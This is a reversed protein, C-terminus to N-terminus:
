YANDEGKLQNFFTKFIIKIDLLVSWNSIYWVDHEVRKEMQWLEKTEGRYGNIQAWGTIGPKAALRIMYKDILSRYQETHSKMHPRPGVVTMNGWLVNYFQPLEDLSTRRLFDGFKTKRPDDKTAQLKDSDANVRMTRFKLCTFDKGYLGSRKQRFFVPGPSSLKIGIAIPVFIIPSVIAFPVSVALDLARKKLRNLTSALPTFHHVLTHMDGVKSFRFQASMLKPLKPVYIFQSGFEEALQMVRTLEAHDNGDKAFYIKDIRETLALDYLKATPILISRDVGELVTATMNEIDDFVGFIQIGYAPDESLQRILQSATRGSGVIVAKQFNYGESRATRIIKRSLMSWATLFFSFVFFFLAPVHWSSTPAVIFTFAMLNVTTLSSFKMCKRFISDYTITRRSHTEYLKLAFPVFSLNAMAAFWLTHISLESYLSLATVIISFNLMLWDGISLSMPVFKGFRRRKIM